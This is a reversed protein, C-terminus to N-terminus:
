TPIKRFFAECVKKRSSQKQVFRKWCKELNRIYYYSIQTESRSCFEVISNLDVDYKEFDSPLKREKFYKKDGVLKLM